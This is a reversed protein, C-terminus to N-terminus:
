RNNYSGFTKIGAILICAGLISILFSYLNFGNVGGGGVLSSIFGGVLAGIIGIAINQLAGQEADTKMILSALWGVLAGFIIWLIIGM